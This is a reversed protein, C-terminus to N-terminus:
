PIRFFNPVPKTYIFAFFSVINGDPDYSATGNFTFSANIQDLYPEVSAQAVPLKNTGIVFCSLSTVEGTIENTITNVSTTIDEWISGNFHYM